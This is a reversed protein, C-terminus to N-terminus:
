PLIDNFIEVLAIQLINTKRIYLEMSKFVLIKLILVAKNMNKIIIYDTRTELDFLLLNWLIFRVYARM